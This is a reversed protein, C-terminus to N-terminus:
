RLPYGRIHPHASQPDFRSLSMVPNMEPFYGAISGSPIDYAVATLGGISHSEEDGLLGCFEIQDGDALGRNALDEQNM